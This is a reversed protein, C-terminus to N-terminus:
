VLFSDQFYLKGSRVCEKIHECLTNWSTMMKKSLTHRQLLGHRALYSDRASVVTEENSRKAFKSLTEHPREQEKGIEQCEETVRHKAGMSTECSSLKEPNREKDKEMNKMKNSREQDSFRDKARSKPSSEKRDRKRESSQVSRM